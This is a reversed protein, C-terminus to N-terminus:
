DRISMLVIVLLCLPLSVPAIVSVLALLFIPVLKM